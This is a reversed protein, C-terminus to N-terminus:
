ELLGMIKARVVVHKRTGAHLKGYMNKLHWKVTEEGINMSSGIEKNTMHHTLLFLIQHERPTLMGAHSTALKHDDFLDFRPMMKTVELKHKMGGLQTARKPALDDREYISLLPMFEKSLQRLGYMEALSCAENLCTESDEGMQLKALAHLFMIQVRERGRHLQDLLAPTQDLIEMMCRWNRQALAVYAHSILMTLRLLPGLFTAGMQASTSAIADLKQQLAVCTFVQSKLAHLRIREALGVICLRPIMRVEGIVCLERLVDHGQAEQGADILLKSACVYAMAIVDPSCHREIYEMRYSFIVRAEDIKNLEILVTTLVTALAATIPSHRGIEREAIGLKERLFPAAIKAQGEWLYSMGTVFIFFGQVADFTRTTNDASMAKSLFYRAAEPEGRYLYCLSKQGLMMASMKASNIPIADFWPAIFAYADDIRDAHYAATALIAACECHDSPTAHADSLICTVWHQAEAQRAGMALTWAAALRLTPRLAVVDDPLKELWALVRSFQGRATIEYLCRELFLYAQENQNAQMAHHAAEEYMEQMALWHLANKHMEHRQEQPLLLWRSYLFQKVLPHMRLWPEQIEILAPTTQRLLQLTNEAQDSGTLASCLAPCLKDLAAIHILFNSVECPLGDILFDIFYREINGSMALAKKVADKVNNNKGMSSMLLQLGLPWGDTLEHLYEVDAMDMKANSLIALFQHTEERFFRLADIGLLSCQDFGVFECMAIKVIHRSSIVIRLNSPAHHILYGILERAINESFYHFDDLILVIEQGIQAVELLWHTLMEHDNTQRSLLQDLLPAFRMKGIAVDMAIALGRVFRVKDDHEDLALWAVIEGNALWEKRWQVLLSTKGYGAPAHLLLVSKDRIHMSSSSLSERRLVMKRVRPPTVKLMFEPDAYTM